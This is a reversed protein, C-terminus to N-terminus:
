YEGYFDNGHNHGCSVWTVTPQELIAAFLGTNVSWCSINSRRTGYFSYENYLHLYEPFPIHFFLIGKGKSKQDKIATNAARFWDVQDPNACSTGRQGLCNKHGTDLFWLRFRVDLGHSDFM